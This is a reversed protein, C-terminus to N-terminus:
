YHQLRSLADDIKGSSEGTHYLNAYMQPFYRCQNILESPTVGDEIPKRWQSIERRLGPSGSAAVALEWSKIVPVGAATCAELAGLSSSTIDSEALWRQMPNMSDAFTFGNKLHEIQGVTTKRSSRVASNAKIM